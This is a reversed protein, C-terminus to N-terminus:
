GHPESTAPQVPSPQPGSPQRCALEPRKSRKTSPSPSRQRFSSSSRGACPQKPKRGSCLVYGRSVRAHGARTAERGEQLASKRPRALPGAMLIPSVLKEIRTVIEEAPPRKPTHMWEKAAGYIAWSATSAILEPQMSMPQHNAMGELLMRRVVAIVASEMHGELQKQSGCDAGPISTIFDCVGLAIARLAGDCGTFSVNRKALLGRFRGGVVCELLAFKDPYHDYFTARHLTAKDAIDQVSIKDFDKESLLQDLATQLMQRTRRVRPDITKPTAAPEVAVEVAEVQAGAQEM